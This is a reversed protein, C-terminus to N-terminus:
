VNPPCPDNQQRGVADPRAADLALGALVLGTHPTPLLAEHPFTDVPEQAVLRAPGALRARRPVAHDAWIPRVVQQFPIVALRRPDLPWVNTGLGITIGRIM